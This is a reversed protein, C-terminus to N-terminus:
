KDRRKIQLDHTRIRCPERLLANMFQCRSSINKLIRKMWLKILLSYACCNTTFSITMAKGINEVLNFDSTWFRGSPSDGTIGNARTFMLISLEEQISHKRRAFPMKIKLLMKAFLDWGLALGSHRVPKRVLSASIQQMQGLKEQQDCSTLWAKCTKFQQVVDIDKVSQTFDCDPIWVWTKRYFKTDCVLGRPLEARVPCSSHKTNHFWQIALNNLILSDLPGM